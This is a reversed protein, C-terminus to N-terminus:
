ALVSDIWANLDEGAASLLHQADAQREAMADASVDHVRGFYYFKIKPETGSPRVAISLTQPGAASDFFLLNGHPSEIKSSAVNAPLSRVELQGYDRVSEFTVGGLTAPPDTRLREMIKAIQARGDAGKCYRSITAEAFVGHQVYLENLRDLLSKGQEKLESALEVVFLAAISGDKDRAYQGALYGISEECGFVFNDPGGDEIAKAIHKFGVLLETVAKVEFSEAVVAVMPTTVLTEVVFSDASLTGKAARQRLVYDTLLAAVQNGTLAVFAGDADRVCVGIRDADPDSALILETSLNENKIHDIIPDYVQTREPNPFHDPVNPFNGDAIRHPEFISVGDFGAEKMVRYCSTEGVGHLPSYVAEIGRYDSLGNALVADTFARDVEEGIVQIRGDATGEEFSVMPIELADAVADVIGKDHPPLIQAGNNWYAKFGNDEPPNHSASVMVGVDCNLHRVAFSLAPTSRYSDFIFVELGNGALVQATIQSFEPSNNRTDCTVVARGGPKGTSAQMYRALGHASEAITRENITAPGFEGMPGRRGGTGFELTEWFHDNLYKFDGDRLLEELRPHWKSYADERIWRTLNEPSAYTLEGQEAAQDIISILEDRVSPQM